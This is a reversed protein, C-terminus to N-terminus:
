TGFSAFFDDSSLKRQPTEKTPVPKVTPPTFARQPTSFRSPDGETPAATMNRSSSPAAALYSPGGGGSGVGGMGAGGFKAAMRAKAEDRLRTQRRIYQDDSEGALREVGNRDEGPLGPAEGQDASSSQSMGGISSVSSSTSMGGNVVTSQTPRNATDSGFGSYKSGSKSKNSQIQRQLETLGDEDPQALGQTASQVTSTLGSWFGAGTSKVSNTLGSISQKTKDDNIISTAFTFANGLGSVVSDVGSFGGGNPDYNPDSGMGSMTRGGSGVGAMGSGGFKSAMRVRAEERLRTQRAVYQAETEGVLREMGNPDKGGGSYGMSGVSAASGMSSPSPTYAKRQQPPPLETPEPRGEVRAKLVEKYLQAVPSEYKQKIPTRPDIGNKKLYENCKDNGGNKMLALQKETWSDM